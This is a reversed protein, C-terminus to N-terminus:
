TGKNRRNEQGTMLVTEPFGPAWPMGACATRFFVDIDAWSRMSPGYICIYIFTYKHTIYIYIYIYRYIYIIHYSIIHYSIIHYSIIGSLEPNDLHGHIFFRWSFRQGGTNGTATWAALHSLQHFGKAKTWEDLWGTLIVAHIHHSVYISIMHNTVLWKYM